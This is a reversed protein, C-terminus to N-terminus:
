RSSCSSTPPTPNNEDIRSYGLANLQSAIEALIQADYTRDIDDEEGAGVRVISDPM